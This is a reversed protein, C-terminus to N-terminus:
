IGWRIFITTCYILITFAKGHDDDDDDDLNSDGNSRSADGNQSEPNRKTPPVWLREELEEFVVGSADKKGDGRGDPEGTELVHPITAQYGSGIRIEGRDAVLSKQHPDYVLAYFFADPRDTYSASTEVESLLTVSCKGLIFILHCILFSLKLHLKM